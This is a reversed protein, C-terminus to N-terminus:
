IQNFLAGLLRRHYTSFRYQFVRYIVLVYKLVLNVSEIKPVNQM